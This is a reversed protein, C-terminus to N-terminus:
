RPVRRILGLHEGKTGQYILLRDGHFYMPSPSKLVKIINHSHSFYFPLTHLLAPALRLVSYTYLFCIAFYHVRVYM